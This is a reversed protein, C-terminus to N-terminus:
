SFANKKREPSFQDTSKVSLGLITVEGLCAVAPLASENVKLIRLRQPVLANLCSNPTLRM